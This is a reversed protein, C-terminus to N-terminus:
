EEGPPCAFPIEKLPPREVGERELVAMLAPFPSPDFYPYALFTALPFPTEDSEFRRLEELAGEKDGLLNLLLWTANNPAPGAAKRETLIALLEERRGEACAQRAAVMMDYLGQRNEYRRALEAAEDIRM